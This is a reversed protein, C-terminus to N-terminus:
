LFYEMAEEKTIHLDYKPHALREAAGDASLFSGDCKSFKMQKRYARVECSKRYSRVHSYLYSHIGFGEVYWQRVHELEHQLVGDDCKLRPELTICPGSAFNKSEKDVDKYSVFAPLFGYIFKIKM